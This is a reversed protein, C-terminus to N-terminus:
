AVNEPQQMDTGKEIEQNQLSDETKGNRQAIKAKNVTNMAELAVEFRDTRINYGAIVGDARNTYIIPATDTIPEKNETIRKIKEEITEGEKLECGGINSYPTHYKAYKM